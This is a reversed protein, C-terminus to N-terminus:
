RKLEFIPFIGPTLIQHKYSEHIEDSWFPFFDYRSKERFFHLAFFFPLIGLLEWIVFMKGVLKWAEM